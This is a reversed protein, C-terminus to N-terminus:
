EPKQDAPWHPPEAPRAGRAVSSYERRIHHTNVVYTTELLKQEATKSKNRQDM